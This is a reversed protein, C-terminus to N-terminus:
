NEFLNNLFKNFLNEVNNNLRFSSLLNDENNIKLYIIWYNKKM